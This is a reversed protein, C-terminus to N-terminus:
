GHSQSNRTCGVTIIQNKYHGLRAWFHYENSFVFETIEDGDYKFCANQNNWDFCILVIEKILSGIFQTFHNKGIHRSAILTKLIVLGLNTRITSGQKLKSRDNFPLINFTTCQPTHFDYDLNKYKM